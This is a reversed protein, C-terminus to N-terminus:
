NSSDCHPAQAQPTARIGGHRLNHFRLRRLGAAALAKSYRRRLRDDNLWEGGEEGFVLDDDGGVQDRSSLGALHQAVERVM